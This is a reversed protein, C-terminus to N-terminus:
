SQLELYLRKSWGLNLTLSTVTKWVAPAEAELAGALRRKREKFGLWAM